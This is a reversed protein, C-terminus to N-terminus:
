NFFSIIVEPHVGQLTSFVKDAKPLAQRSGIGIALMKAKKAASIGAESDEFVACDDYAIGMKEAAVKFVEPDPKAKSVNNGDVIVHFFPLLKTKELIPIANKSASGLAIPMGLEKLATLFEHVGPLVESSDMQSILALYDENKRQALTQFEEPSVKSGAWHIIKKLSAERSIGKLQENLEPTLELGLSKAIKQWALFHYNATDVIVGDLDFIFGKKM